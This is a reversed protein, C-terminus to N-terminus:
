GNNIVKLIDEENEFYNMEFQNKFFTVQRKAYQKTDLKVKEVCEELSSIRKFYPIFEKYGIAQIAQCEKFSNYVEEVEKLLGRKMMEDVRKEILLNLENRDFKRMVFYTDEYIPKHKQSSNLETKSVGNQFYIEIARLVRKRNNPHIKKADFPDIGELVKHLTINDMAEYKSMDIHDQESFTYDYLASRIYLGSGGVMIISKGRSLIDEIVKRADTQYEKISYPKSASVINFLHHPVDEFYEKPPKNVGIDLEKYIQFADANVIEANIKKALSFAIDSKGTCTPGCIVLIM